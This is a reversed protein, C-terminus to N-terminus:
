EEYNTIQITDDKDVLLVTPFLPKDIPINTYQDGKDEGNIIFKLTRKEMNMIVIVEDKVAPLNYGKYDSYNYPPGSFVTSASCVMYWGCHWSTQNIIFDIPAVGVLVCKRNTKLIKIKWKYELGKELQHLCTTGTWNWNKFPATRTMINGNEGTIIFTKKDEQINDPCKKFIYKYSVDLLNGFSKIQELIGHKQIDEPSFKFEKNINEEGKVINENIENIQEINKEIIICDNILSSLKNPENWFKNLSKGKESCIKIKQPLKESTKILEEKFFLDDYKEDVKMLLQEERNNVETKIKTFIKQIKIKIEEKEKNIKDFINKLEKISNEITRSLEELMKMNKELKNKKEEKINEIIYTECDKHLGYGKEKMKCICAACCLINHNKCYFELKNGHNEENCFGTFIDKMEENLNYINHNQLLKSHFITCNKCMYVQCKDCYNVADIEGHDKSSCKKKQQKEM